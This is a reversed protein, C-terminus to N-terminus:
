LIGDFYQGQVGFMMNINNVVNDPLKLAPKNCPNAAM